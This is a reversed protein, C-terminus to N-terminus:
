YRKRKYGCYINNNENKEGGKLKVWEEKGCQWIVFYMDKGYDYGCIKGKRKQKDYIYKINKM